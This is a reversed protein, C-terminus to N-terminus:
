IWRRCRQFTVLVAAGHVVILSGTSRRSAHIKGTCCTPGCHRNRAAHRRVLPPLPPLPSARGWGRLFEPLGNVLPDISREFYKDRKDSRQRVSSLVRCIRDGRICRIMKRPRAQQPCNQILRMRERERQNKQNQKIKKEKKKDPYLLHYISRKETQDARPFSVITTCAQEDLRKSKLSSFSISIKKYQFRRSTRCFTYIIDYFVHLNNLSKM